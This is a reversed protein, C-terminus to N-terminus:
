KGEDMMGFSETFYIKMKVNYKQAVVDFAEDVIDLLLESECVARANIVLQLKDTKEKLKQDHIIDYDVGILSSKGYDDDNGIAFTKLHPVNRKNEILGGRIEEIIDDVLQNGDFKKGDKSTIYVNRNFWSMKKEAAIFEEGGYGIDTINVRSENELIYDVLPKLNKKEKASIAFVPIGPCAEELFKVYREVDEDTMLDIKNLVVCDAEKLQANLLFKLEEPLNIDAREPMIMKLREPDTIVTFPALIFEDSHNNKLNGYVHALAGVGCGPIDSMVIDKPEKNLRNIREILTDPIFCICDGTIPSVELNQRNSYEADIIHKAGLDNAIIAASRGSNNLYETIAIMTTTKGAGLFGSVVMFRKRNM